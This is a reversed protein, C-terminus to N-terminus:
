ISGSSKDKGSRRRHLRNFQAAPNNNGRRPKVASEINSLQSTNIVTKKHTPSWDRWAPSTARKQGGRAQDEEMKEEFDRWSSQHAQVSQLSNRHMTTLDDGDDSVDDSENNSNPAAIDTTLQPAITKILENLRNSLHTMQLQLQQLITDNQQTMKNQRQDTQTNQIKSAISEQRKAEDRRVKNKAASYSIREKTAVEWYFKERKYIPCDRSWAPHDNNCNLCKTQNQCEGITQNTTDKTLHFTNACKGCMKPAKCPYKKSSYHDFSWCNKCRNPPPLYLKVPLSEYHINLRKDILQSETFKGDLTITAFATNVQSNNTWRKDIEANVVITNKRQLDQLLEEDTYPYKALDDYKITVKTRNMHYAEEFVVPIEGINKIKTIDQLETKNVRLLYDGSKLKKCMHLNRIIKPIESYIDRPRTEHLQDDTGKLIVMVTLQDQYIKLTELNGPQPLAPMGGGPDGGWGGSSAAM